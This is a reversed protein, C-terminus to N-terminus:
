LGLWAALKATDVHLLKFSIGGDVDKGKKVPDSIYGAVIGINPDFVVIMDPPNKGIKKLVDVLTVSAGIGFYSGSGNLMTAFQIDGTILDFVKVISYGPGVGVAKAGFLYIGKGDIKSANPFLQIVDTEAPVEAFTPASIALTLLVVLVM